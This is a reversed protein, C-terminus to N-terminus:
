RNQITYTNDQIFNLDVMNESFNQLIRQTDQNCCPNEEM